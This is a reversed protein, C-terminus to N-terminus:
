YFEDYIVTGNVPPNGNGDTLVELSPVRPIVLGMNTSTIDLAGEPNTTGIGVQAFMSSFCIGMIVSFITKM